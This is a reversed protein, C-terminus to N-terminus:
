TITVGSTSIQFETTTVSTNTVSIYLIEGVEFVIVPNFIIQNTQTPTYIKEIINLNGVLKVDDWWITGAKNGGDQLRLSISNINNIDFTGTGATSSPSDLNLDILHWQETNFPATITTGTISYIRIATGSTIRVQVTRTQGGGAAVTVRVRANIKQWSSMDFPTSWTYTLEPYNNNDSQTFTLKASGTGEVFQDTAYSWTAAASSGISTNTWTAIDVSSNFGGSPILQTATPVYKALFGECSARGGLHLETIATRASITQQATAAANSALVTRKTLKTSPPPETLGSIYLPNTRTGIAVGSTDRLNNYISGNADVKAKKSPDDKDAVVIVTNDFNDTKNSDSLPM